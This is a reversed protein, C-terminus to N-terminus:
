KQRAARKADFTHGCRPCIVLDETDSGGEVNHGLEARLDLDSLVRAAELVEQTLQGKRALPLLRTLKAVGLEALLKVDLGMNKVLYEYICSLRTAWSYSNTMPLKLEECYEKYSEYRLISWEGNVRADYLLQGMKLFMVEAQIALAEIAQKHELANREAESPMGVAGISTEAIEETAVTVSVAADAAATQKKPRGRKGPANQAVYESKCVKEPWGTEEIATQLYEAEKEVVEGTETNTIRYKNM